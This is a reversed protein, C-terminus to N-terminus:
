SQRVCNLSNALPFLDFPDITKNAAFAFTHIDARIYFLQRM